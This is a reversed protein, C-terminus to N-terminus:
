AIALCAMEVCVFVWVGLEERERSGAHRQCCGRAVDHVRCLWLMGNCAVAVCMCERVWVCVLSLLFFDGLV